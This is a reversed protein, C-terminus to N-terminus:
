ADALTLLQDLEPDQSRFSRYPALIESAEHLKGQEVLQRADQLTKEYAPITNKVIRITASGLTKRHGRWTYQAKARIFYEFPGEQYSKIPTEIADGTRESKKRKTGTIIMWVLGGIAVAGGLIDYDSDQCEEPTDLPDCKLTTVYGGGATLAAGGFYGGVGPSIKPEHAIPLEMEVKGNALVFRDAGSSLVLQVSEGAIDQASETYFTAEREPFRRLYETGIPTSSGMSKLKSRGACGTFMLTAILLSAIIERM